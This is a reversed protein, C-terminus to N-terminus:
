HASLPEAEAYRGVHRCLPPVLLACIRMYPALQRM